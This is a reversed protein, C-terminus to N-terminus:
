CYKRCIYSFIVIVGVMGVAVAVNSVMEARALLTKIKQSDNSRIFEDPKNAYQKPIEVKLFKCLPRWGQTVNYILLKDKDVFQKVSEIWEYYKNMVIEKNMRTEKGFPLAFCINCLIRYKYTGPMARWFWSNLVDGTRGITTSYSTFWQQANDRISLIVKYDIRKRKYYEILELYFICTPWDMCATYENNDLLEEFYKGYKDIDLTILNWDKFSTINKEEKLKMKAEYLLIWLETDRRQTMTIRMHYCKYGLAHLGFQISSTGTRGFGSGIIVQKDNHQIAANADFDHAIKDNALSYFIKQSM